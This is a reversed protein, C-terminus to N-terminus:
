YVSLGLFGVIGQWFVYFRQNLRAEKIKKLYHNEWGYSKITRAGV